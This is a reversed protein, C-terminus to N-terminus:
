KYEEEITAPPQAEAEEFRDGRALAIEGFLDSQLIMVSQSKVMELVALFLCIMARRSRQQEMVRLIFLPKDKNAADKGTALLLSRLHLVMDGISIEEDQVEYVPRTKVRELVEGFAKILDFLNVALGPDDDESVFHKMQPNSWVNEEIIRKQQLMEAADKFRQHELLRQVLEERPDEATEGEKQLAPDVPLLLRSKIHILTAAMFVFEAGIDLDMERAKDLYALYQSTITAIPIDRIDIQQKRILDLLLDLPGDYQDLHFNLPSSSVTSLRKIIAQGGPRKAALANVVMAATENVLLGMKPHSPEFDAKVGYEELTESTTPGISGIFASQLSEVVQKAIGEDEAIKMLNVLQTSTTLLVVDFDGAILKAAAQRLPGTDEPLDWGYIRMPTVEKGMSILGDILDTNPKGYEQLAVRNEPRDRMVALVDRWTNPEPVQVDPILGLERVAASPKPGRVIVTLRRLASKLDAEGYRTLLTKWLLRTGVGTLLVLCDFDGRLLREAFAFAEEHQELPVERMSPAVFSEGGQKRILTAMEEARRSELSLVRLGDFPM